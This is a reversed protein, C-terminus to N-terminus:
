FDLGVYNEAIMAQAVESSHVYDFEARQMKKEFENHEDFQHVLNTLYWSFREVKWVRDLADRSYSELRSEDGNKWITIARALRRVDAIALNLGKAGTPPVIHAADGALFLRGFRMQQAVFSRLPAISMELPEGTVVGDGLVGLRKKFTSWFRDIPWDDLTEGPQTQVYYRSRTESRMSALAFGDQHNAYVVNKAVPPQDVLVGLWGFPYVREYRTAKESPMSQRSVGHFGDCGAILQAKVEVSHGNQNTFRARPTSSELGSIETDPSDWHITQGRAECAEVLDRTIETQGYVTVYHGTISKVPVEFSDGDFSLILGDHDIRERQLRSECGAEIMAEVTGRELVGARIRSLVREKTTREVIINDIGSQYLLQSLLLGSPGAGVILVSCNETIM